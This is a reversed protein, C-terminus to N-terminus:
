RQDDAFRAVLLEFIASFLFFRLLPCYNYHWLRGNKIEREFFQRSCVYSTVIKYHSSFVNSPIRESKPAANTLGDSLM